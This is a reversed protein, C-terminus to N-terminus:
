SPSYAPRRQWKRMVLVKHGAEDRLVFDDVLREIGRLGGPVGFPAPPAGQELPNCGHCICEIGRRLGDSIVDVSISGQNELAQRAAESVATAIRTQDTLTFGLNRALERARQRAMVVDYPDQLFIKEALQAM